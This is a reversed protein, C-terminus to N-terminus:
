GLLAETEALVGGALGGEVGADGVGDDAGGDVFDAGGGEFGDDQAGLGYHCACCGADYGAAGFGHGVGRM